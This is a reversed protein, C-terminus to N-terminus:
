GSLQDKRAFVQRLDLALPAVVYWVPGDARGKELCSGNRVGKKEEKRPWDKEM